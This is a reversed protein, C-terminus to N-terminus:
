VWIQCKEVMVELILDPEPHGQTTVTTVTSDPICEKGLARGWGSVEQTPEDGM